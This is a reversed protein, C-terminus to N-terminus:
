KKLLRLLSGEIGYSWLKFLLGEHWVKYFAKSIDLFFDTIDRKPSCHFSQYLVDTISQLQAVCFDGPNFGFQCDTFLNNQRFYNFVSNFILGELIKISIPPLSIPRYNTTLNTFEKKHIPVVNTCLKKWDEPFTGEKIITKFFSKLPLAISNGCSQIM